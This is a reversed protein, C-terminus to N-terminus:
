FRKAGTPTAQEVMIVEYLLSETDLQSVSSDGIPKRILGDLIFRDYAPDYLFLGADNMYGGDRLDKKSFLVQISQSELEGAEEMNTIPWSRLYNYNVICRLNIDVTSPKTTDERYRDSVSPNIVRRWIIIVLGFTDFADTQILNRFDDLDAQDILKM